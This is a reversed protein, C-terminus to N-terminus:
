PHTLLKGTRRRRRVAGRQCNLMVKEHTIVQPFKLSFGFAALTKDTAKNTGCPRL